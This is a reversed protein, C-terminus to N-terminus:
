SLFLIEELLLVFCRWLSYDYWISFLYSAVFYCIYTIHHYLRFWWDCLLRICCILLSLILSSFVPHVLLDVPFQEFFQFKVICVFPIHVIGFRKLFILRVFKEPIKLYLRIVHDWGSSSIKYYDVLFFFSFKCFKPSVQGLPGGLLISLFRFALKFRHGQFPEYFGPYTLPFVPSLIGLLTRFEQPPTRDSLKWHFGGTLVPTFFDCFTIIMIM